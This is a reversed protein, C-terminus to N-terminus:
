YICQVELVKSVSDSVHGIDFVIVIAVYLLALVTKATQVNRGFLNGLESDIFRWPCLNTVQSGSASYFINGTAPGWLM